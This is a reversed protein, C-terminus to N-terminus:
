PKIARPHGLDVGTSSFDKHCPWRGHVHFLRDIARSGSSRPISKSSRGASRRLARVHRAHRRGPRHRRDCWRWRGGPLAEGRRASRAGDRSLLHASGRETGADLAQMGHLTTGHALGHYRARRSGRDSSVCRLVDSGRLAVRGASNSFALGSALMLALSLLRLAQPVRRRRSRSSACSDVAGRNADVAPAQGTRSAILVATALGGATM